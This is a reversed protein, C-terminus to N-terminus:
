KLGMGFTLGLSFARDDGDLVDALIVDIVFKIDKRQLPDIRLGTNYSGRLSTVSGSPTWGASYSYNSFDNIWHVYNKLKEPFLNMEFGMAFDFDDNEVGIYDKDAFTKGFSVSTTTPMGFIDSSYTAVVYLQGATYDYEWKGSANKSGLPFDRISQISGGVAVASSGEKYFQFKGNLLVSYPDGVPNDWNDMTDYAIAIEAKKFLSVAIKPISTNYTRGDVGVASVIKNDTDGHIWHYGVDVGIDNETWGIEATPTAILGTVGNFSMGKTTQGFSLAAACTLVILLSFFKRTM